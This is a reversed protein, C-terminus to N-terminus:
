GVGCSKGFSGVCSAYLGGLFWIRGFGLVVVHDNELKGIVRSNHQISEVASEIRM